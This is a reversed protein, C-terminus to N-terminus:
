RRKLLEARAAQWEAHNMETALRARPAQAPPASAASSSSAGGFLWPKSQRLARMAAAAGVVEGREDLTVASTDLLKIGDLDIMGARLAETTLEARLIRARAEAEVAVLRRELAAVQEDVRPESTADQTVDDSM